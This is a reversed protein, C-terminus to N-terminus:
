AIADVRYRRGDPRSARNGGRGPNRRNLPRGRCARLHRQAGIRSYAGQISAGICTAAERLPQYSLAAGNVVRATRDPFQGASRMFGTCLARRAADM